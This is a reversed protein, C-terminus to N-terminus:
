FSVFLTMRALISAQDDDDWKLVHINPIIEVNERSQYSLGLTGYSQQADTNGTDHRYLDARAIFRMSSGVRSTVFGSIGYRRDTDDMVDFERPNVFGELGVRWTDTRYGAYANATFSSGDEFAYYDGGVVFFLAEDPHFELRGYVRKFRDTEMGLGSNNGVMVSYRLRGDSSLPGALSVGIDRTHAIGNRHQLTKQVVRYQWHGEYLHWLPPAQLGATITHGEGFADDWRIWLDKVFPAPRGQTTTQSDNAELRFRGSVNSAVGFDSTFYIRRYGFGHNGDSAGDSSQVTYDYDAFVVGSFQFPQQASLLSPSTCWICMVLVAGFPRLPSRTMFM